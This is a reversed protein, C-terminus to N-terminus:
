KVQNSSDYSITSLLSTLAGAFGSVNIRFCTNGRKRCWSVNTASTLNGERSAFINRLFLTKAVINGRKRAGKLDVVVVADVVVGCFLSIM